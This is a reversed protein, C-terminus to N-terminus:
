GMSLTRDPAIMGLRLPGPLSPLSPTSWMVWLELMVPVEGDSQKTGYGPFKNSLPRVGRCLLLWHIRCGWSVPCNLGQAENDSQNTDNAPCRNHTHPPARVERCLHLRQIRCGWSVPCILCKSIWRLFVFM